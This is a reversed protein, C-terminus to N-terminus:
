ETEGTPVLKTTKLEVCDRPLTTVSGVSGTSSTRATTFVAAKAYKREIFKKPREALKV